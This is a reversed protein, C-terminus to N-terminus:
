TFPIECLGYKDAKKAEDVTLWENEDVTDVTSKSIEYVTGGTGNKIILIKIGDERLFRGIQRHLFGGVQKATEIIPVDHEQAEKEIARLAESKRDRGFSRIFDTIREREIM